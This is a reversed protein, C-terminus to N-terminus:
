AKIDVELFVTIEVENSDTLSLAKRLCTPAIIELVNSPYDPKEPIVIAGKIKNMILINFCRAQFFGKAPTIEIGEFDQLTERLLKAEREPLRINLTGVYPDFGLKKRIQKKAWAIGIFRSGVKEGSFVVGKVKVSNM